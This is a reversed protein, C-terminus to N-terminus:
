RRRSSKSDGKGRKVNGKGEELTGRGHELALQHIELREQSAEVRGQGAILGAMDDRLSMHGEALLRLETRLGDAVVDFQHCTTIGEAKIETRIDAVTREFRADLEQDTM